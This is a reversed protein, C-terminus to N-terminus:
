EGMWRSRVRNRGAKKAEYLFIDATRMLADASPFVETVHTAVGISVTMQFLRDHFKFERTEIRRRLREAVAVAVDETVERLVLGFEEGGVRAFVDETRIAQQTEQVLSILAHDGAAHGFRDNILKFHDLDFMLLSLPLEHRDAFAFEKVLTELFYKRNFAGTLGDRVASDYLARQAEEDLRDQLGFRLVNNSGIQLKDGDHLTRSGRVQEGNCFTGNKSKLDVLQVEDGARVLKAHHRSVSDDDLWIDSDSARGVTVEAKEIRFMKGISQGRLVILSASRRGAEAVLNEIPRTLTKQEEDSM